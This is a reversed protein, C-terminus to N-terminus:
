AEGGERLPRCLGYGRYRGAGLIVPGIVPEDFMLIAHTHHLNGGTKRQINPFRRAHPSGVFMSVSALIIDKPIPLGIRECSIAITQEADGPKKPHRDFVIPTVTAWRDAGAQGATWTESQLARRPDDGEDLKLKWVGIRGMRIELERPLGQGDFLVAGLCRKQEVSSIDRPVAVAVGLLHGEAHRHDVHPLPVFALHPEQLPSGEATHGSVWAPPPQVPCQSMMTNCLAETLQLTSELGLRPGDVRRLILLNSDFVSHSLDRSSALGLEPPAYSMWECPIQSRKGNKQELEHHDQLRQLRGSEAGKGFVRLSHGSRIGRENPLLTPSPPDSDIWMQVFSSPDGISTVKECISAMIATHSTPCTVQPWILYVCPNEPIAVPFPIQQRSRYEPLIALGANKAQKLNDITAISALRKGLKAQSDNEPRSIQTDNVPVYTPLVLREEAPSAALAPPPLTELWELARHEDADGDTEFHAAALAMFVRDPHPPWEARNRDAPHTAMAWGNLYRIGLAFM